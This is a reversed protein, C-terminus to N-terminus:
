KTNGDELLSASVEYLRKIDSNSLVIAPYGSFLGETMELVIEGASGNRFLQCKTDYDSATWLVTSKCSYDVHGGLSQPATNKPPPTIAGPVREQGRDTM